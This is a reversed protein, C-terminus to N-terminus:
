KLHIMVIFSFTIASIYKPGFIRHVTKVGVLEVKVFDNYISVAQTVLVIRPDDDLQVEPFLKAQCLGTLRKTHGYCPVSHLHYSCKRHYSLPYPSSIHQDSGHMTSLQDRTISFKQWPYPFIELLNDQVLLMLAAKALVKLMCYRDELQQAWANLASLGKSFHVFSAIKQLKERTKEEMIRPPWFM